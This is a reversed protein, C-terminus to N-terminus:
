RRTAAGATRIPTGITEAEVLLGRERLDDIIPEAAEDTSLGALWGYDPYFRGGEDVPTLVPLDHVRRSSSTRRGAGPAIHM